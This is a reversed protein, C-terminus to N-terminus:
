LYGGPQGAQGGRQGMFGKVDHCGSRLRGGAQAAHARRRRGAAGSLAARAEAPGQLGHLERECLHGRRPIADGSQFFVPGITMAFCNGLSSKRRFKHCKSHCIQRSLGRFFSIMSVVGFRGFASTCLFVLWHSVVHKTYQSVNLCIM